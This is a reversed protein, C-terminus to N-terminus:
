LKNKIDGFVEVLVNAMRESSEKLLSTFKGNSKVDLKAIAFYAREEGYKSLKKKLKYEYMMGMVNM